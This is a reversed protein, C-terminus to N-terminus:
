VMERNGDDHPFGKRLYLNDVRVRPGHLRTTLDSINLSAGFLDGRLWSM